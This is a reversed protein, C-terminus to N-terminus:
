FEYIAGMRVSLQPGDFYTAGGTRISDGIRLGIDATLFKLSLFNTKTLLVGQYSYTKTGWEQSGYIIKIKNILSRPKFRYSVNYETASDVIGLIANIGLKGQSLGVDLNVMTPNLVALGISRKTKNQKRAEQQKSKKYSFNDESKSPKETETRAESEAETSKKTEKKFTPTKVEPMSFSPRLPPAPFNPVLRRKQMTLDALKYLKENGPEVSITSKEYGDRIITFTGEFTPSVGRIHVEGANTVVAFPTNSENAYLKYKENPDSPFPNLYIIVERGETIKKNPLTLKATQNRREIFVTDEFSFLITYYKGPFTENSIAYAGVIYEGLNINELLLSSSSFSNQIQEDKYRVTLKKDKEFANFIVRSEDKNSISINVGDKINLVEINGSPPAMKQPPPPPIYDIHVEVQTMQGATISFNSKFQDKNNSLYVILEYNGELFNYPIDYKNHWVVGYDKYNNNDNPFYEYLINNIETSKTNFPVIRADQPNTNVTKGGVKTQNPRISIYDWRIFDRSSDDVKISLLGSSPKLLQYMASAIKEGLIKRLNDLSKREIQFSDSIIIDQTSVDLIKIDIEFKNALVYIEGLIIYDTEDPYNYSKMVAMMNEDSLRRQISEGAIKVQTWKGIETTIITSLLKPDLSEIIYDGNAMEITQKTKVGQVTTSTTNEKLLLATTDHSVFHYIFFM